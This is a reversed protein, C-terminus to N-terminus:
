LEIKYHIPEREKYYTLYNFGCSKIIAAFRDFDFGLKGPEHCDSGLTINEGGLRRFEKLIEIDLTPTFGDFNQYTKSNIELAKGREALLKLIPIFYDQYRSFTIDRESGTYPAYRVVYDFHGIIDFDPNELSTKWILELVRSYASYADKGIYYNRYYPDEGDIFHISAIIHDFRNNNCFDKIKQSSIPQMGIEVGKLVLLRESGDATSTTRVGASEMERCVKEIEGQQEQPNFVFKLLAGDRTPPDLDLHDTIGLVSLNKALADKILSEITNNSDPSFQSHSHLDAYRM